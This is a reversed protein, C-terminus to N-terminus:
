GNERLGASVRDVPYPADRFGALRQAAGLFRKALRGEAIAVNVANERGLARGMEDRTLLAVVPVGKLAGMRSAATEGADSALSIAGVTGADLWSRVKEYGAVVAGARRGLGLYELCRATLLREVTGILDDGVQTQTRFARSFLRRKIAITLSARDATVWAGRGPLSADVDAVVRGEPDLVFRILGDPSGSQGKVICRREPARDRPGADTPLDDGAAADPIAVMGDPMAPDIAVVMM